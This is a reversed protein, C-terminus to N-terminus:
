ESEEFSFREGKIHKVLMIKTHLAFATVLITLGFHLTLLIIALDSM